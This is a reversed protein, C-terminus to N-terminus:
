GLRSTSDSNHLFRVVRFVLGDVRILGTDELEVIDMQPKPFRTFLVEPFNAKMPGKSAATSYPTRNQFGPCLKNCLLCLPQAGGCLFRPFTPTPERLYEFKDIV